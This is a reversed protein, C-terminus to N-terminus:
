ISPGLLDDLWTTVAETVTPLASSGLRAPVGFTHNAFQEDSRPPWLPLLSPTTSQLKRM